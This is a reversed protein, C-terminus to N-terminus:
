RNAYADAAAALGQTYAQNAAQQGQATAAGAGAVYPATQTGQQTALNALLTSVDMPIQAFQQGTRGLINGINAAGQGYIDAQGLGQQQQLGSLASVTQGINQSLDQGVGYRLQGLNAMLGADFQGAGLQAQGLQSAAQGGVGAVQGLRAFRNGYDQSALGIARRQLEELVNGGQTQGTASAYREVERQAQERLWAQEPSEQFAEIAQAQVEPGLAGSLAQQQEFAALGGTSWPGLTGTAQAMGGTSRELARQYESEAGALGTAAPDIPPQASGAPAAPAVPAQAGRLAMAEPSSAIRQSIEEMSMGAGAQNMWNQLGGTKAQRGLHTQYLGQIQAEPSQAIAQGIDGISMGGARQDLWHQLGEQGAQRGLQSQYINQIESTPDPRMVGAFAPNTTVSAPLTAM